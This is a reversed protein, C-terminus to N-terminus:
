DIAVIRLHNLLATNEHYNMNEDSHTFKLKVEHTGPNLDIIISNSYGWESWNGNGRQPFVFASVRKNDMFLSRIACKNNTNVPGNGNSYRFDLAYKGPKTISFTFPITLNSSKTLKLYGTGMFGDIKLEGDAKINTPEFIMAGEEPIVRIPESLFSQYGHNDIAMVQYEAFKKTEIEFELVDADVEALKLGNKFVIFKETRDIQSWVLKNESLKVHPTEPSFKNEVLNINSGSPSVNKLKIKLDHEGRLGANIFPKGVLEGDFFTSDIEHGYGEITINLKADRYTFGKLDHRGKYKEPIFPHFSLGDTDFSMGYMVRYITALNAAVSWLQRDSNIETGMYDGTEAVMNEKNTLFLAAPRYISALGHEVAAYNGIRAGAWTWYGVVFPWIGNNHYPPINPIQPYICSPGYELVPMNKLISVAQEENAIDFLICLAEGLTESRPSLAMHTRGYLFQGYYGKSPMWLSENIASKVQEALREYKEMNTGLIQGMRSLIKMTRYHVANTGLNLSKYIDRPDMWKPYSQERWDLFSSEGMYLAKDKNLATRIDDDVTNRIINYAYALWDMDGTALYVEWAALSWTVRDTSVPWSGGTGTDQIIRENKVKARLSKKSADPNIYALSLLISYSIDRTWVGPWKAGAMFAGDDRIDLLMEELSMNYLATIIPLPSEYEPYTDLDSRLSWTRNTENVKEAYQYKKFLLTIEYIGDNDNDSLKYEPHQRLATFEWTLPFTGGAIYVGDFEDAKIINGDFTRFYGKTKLDYLVENMDVRITVQTDKELIRSHDASKLKISSPHAKGFTYVPTTYEGNEPVIFAVHDEGPDRENDLGNISFKFTILSRTPNRYDSTYTSVVENGSLARATASDQVVRDTLIKYTKMTYVSQNSCSM